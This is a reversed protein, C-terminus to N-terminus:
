YLKLKLYLCAISHIIIDPLGSRSLVLTEKGNIWVRVIDGYKNNYYNSATGIGTWIFRLYSLVPGLGLCFLPGTIPCLSDSIIM